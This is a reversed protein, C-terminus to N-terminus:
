LFHQAVQAAGNAVNIDAIAGNILTLQPFTHGLDADYVVPCKLKGLANNLVDMHTLDHETQNQGGSHRGILIGSLSDLWGNMAVSNMARALQTPWLGGNELYLIVGEPQNKAVFEPINGYKSGALCNIRGLCGGILRGRIRVEADPREGLIKWRTMGSTFSVPDKSYDPIQHQTSSHQEVSDGTRTGLINLTSSAFEDRQGPPLNMLTAGHANAWGSLLTLPLLITTIDSFGLMWKPRVSSLEDFNLLPVIEIALEGGTAPIIASITDNTLFAMLEAARDRASASAGKRQGRLCKGEVVKYGLARLHAIVTDLRALLTAGHIGNSPATVAITDGICFPRPYRIM